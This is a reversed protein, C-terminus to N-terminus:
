RLLYVRGKIIEKTIVDTKLIYYYTGEPLRNGQYEGNWSNTYPRESFVVQGAQNVIILENDEYKEIGEIVLYDNLGDGNATIGDPIFLYSNTPNTMVNIVVEATDCLLPCEETEVCSAYNFRVEGEFCLPRKFELLDNDLEILRGLVPANTIQLFPTIEEEKEDNALPDLEVFFQDDELTFEDDVAEWARVVNLTISDTSYDPCESTSLTWYFINEGIELNDVQGSATTEATIVSGNNSTWLGTADDPLNSLLQAAYEGCLTRDEETMANENPVEVFVEFPTSPNSLCGNYDVRVSYLGANSINVEEIYLSPSVTTFTSNPTTWLYSIIGQGEFVDTTLELFENPCLINEGSIIPTPAQEYFALEVTGSEDACLDNFNVKGTGDNTGAVATIYYSQGVNMGPIFDFFPSDFEALINGQSILLADHLIYYFVDDNDLSPPFEQNIVGTDNTCVRLPTQDITGASTECDCSHSGNELETQCGNADVIQVFYPFGSPIYESFFEDENVTGSQGLVTYPATGNEIFFHVVYESNLDNCFSDDIDVFEPNENVTVQLIEEGEWVCNNADIVRNLQYETTEMPFLTLNGETENVLGAISGNEGESFFVEFPANGNLIVGAEATLGECVSIDETWTGNVESYININIEAVPTECGNAAMILSYIGANATTVNLIQISGIDGSSYSNPGEWFYEADPFSSTSIMLTDGFCVTTDASLIPAEEVSIVGIETFSQPSTCGFQTVELTYIGAQSEQINLIVADETEALVAGFPDLWRYSANELSPGYLLATQGECVPGNNSIEPASPPDVVSIEVTANPEPCSEHIISVTYNGAMSFEMSPLTLTHVTSLVDGEENQWEYVAGSIFQVELDLTNGICITTEGSIIPNLAFLSLNM